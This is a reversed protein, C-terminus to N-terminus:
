SLLDQNLRWISLNLVAAFSVWLLYPLLLAAAAIRRLRWFAVITGLILFWLLLIEAFALGGFRWAFFLWSWLANGILQVVFLILASRAGSFGHARWVLWAAIGMLLYLASWVPGFLWGPPAWAPRNLEQYFTGADLSAFAGLAAAASVLLLWGCLGFIVQKGAPQPV